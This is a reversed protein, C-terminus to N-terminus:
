GEQRDIAGARHGNDQSRAPEALQKLGAWRPDLEGTHGHDPGAEALPVGCQACLGPCDDRCLPSMPLALVVADRFAPELDLLDGDLYREDDDQEDNPDNQDHKDRRDHTDHTDHKDHTNRKGHTDPSRRSEPYLYLETFGVTVTSDVPALCRACEGALPATASATVLVGETVAEFRAILDVDAGAPVGALELRLDEPAPVIRTQTKASGAQRSLSRMDFVLPGRHANTRTNPM